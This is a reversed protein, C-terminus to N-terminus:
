YIMTFRWSMPCGVLLIWLQIIIGLPNLLNPLKLKMLWLQNVKGVEVHSVRYSLIKGRYPNWKEPISNLWIVDGITGSQSQLIVICFNSPGPLQKKGNQYDWCIIMIAWNITWRIWCGIGIEQCLIRGSNLEWHIKSNEDPFFYFNM